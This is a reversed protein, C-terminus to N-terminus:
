SDHLLADYNLVRNIYLFVYILNDQTRHSQAHKIPTPGRPWAVLIYIKKWFKSWCKTIIEYQRHRGAPNKEPDMLNTPYVNKKM